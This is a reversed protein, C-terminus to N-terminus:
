GAVESGAFAATSLWLSAGWAQRCSPCMVLAEPLQPRKAGQRATELTVRLAFGLPAECSPCSVDVPGITAQRPPRYTRNDVPKTAMRHLTASGTMEAVGKRPKQIRAQPRKTTM